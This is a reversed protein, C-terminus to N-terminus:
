HKGGGGAAAGGGGGGAPAGGGGSPAAGGGAHGGGGGGSFGGGGGSSGGRAGGGGSGSSAGGGRASESGGGAHAQVNSGRGGIPEVVTRSGGGHMEQRAVMFNESRHDFTIPTGAVKTGGHGAEDKLAHAEARPAEARELMPVFGQRFEKPAETLVKVPRGEGYAIREVGDGKRDVPHLLGDKLNLPSKGAVDRPHLPVFGVKGGEKVWRVPHHHHRKTGAVWAYRGQHRIWTGSHCVGWEYPYGLPYGAQFGLPYGVRLGMPLAQSSVLRRKGTVPDIEYLNRMQVPSCPFTDIQEVLQPTRAPFGTAQGAQTGGGQQLAAVSVTQRTVEAPQVQAAQASAESPKIEAAQSSQWGDKPEWCKGYPACDFFTGQANMEALGPIPTALGSEKMAEAMAQGRTMVRRAVWQDWEAFASQDVPSGRYARQGVPYTYTAGGNTLVAATPDLRFMMTGLQTVTMADLYSNVRVFSWNPYRTNYWDTPTRVMFKEAPAMPTVNLSLVGSLLALETYPVGATTSLENFALVSNEGLYVTSADEFEIEARGAGTVLSFGTALPLDVVAKQWEGGGAKEGQKGRMVRVDGEVYSVRVIQPYTKNSDAQPPAPPTTKNDTSGGFAQPAVALCSCFLMFMLFRSRFVNM